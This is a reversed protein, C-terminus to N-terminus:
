DGSLARKLLILSFFYRMTLVTGLDLRLIKSVSVFGIGRSCMHCTVALVSVFGIGRSCM